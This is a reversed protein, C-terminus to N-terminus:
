AIGKNKVVLWVFSWSGKIELELFGSGLKKNVAYICGYIEYCEDKFLLEEQEHHKTTLNIM